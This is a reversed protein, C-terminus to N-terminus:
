DLKIQDMVKAIPERIVLTAQHDIPTIEKNIVVLNEGEFYRIFSAAPYVNLSTGGVILLDAQKIQKIAELMTEEDLREEYLVVDPKIVGGCLCHPVGKEKLIFEFGEYSKHCNMCHNKMISGHLELVMKSGAQQHFHDINQTIIAKLKGKQEMEALKYHCANPFKDKFLMKDKYFQYFAETNEIFFSHSLIKEPPYPYQIHYLGDVSRFDKLGSETSVGAGGFFVIKNSQLILTQLRKINEM